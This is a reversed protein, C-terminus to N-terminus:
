LGNATAGDGGRVRIIRYGERQLVRRLDEIGCGGIIENLADELDEPIARCEAFFIRADEVGQMVDPRNLLEMIRAARVPVRDRCDCTRGSQVACFESHRGRNPELGSGLCRTCPYGHSKGTGRCTLCGRCPGECIDCWDGRGASLPARELLHTM